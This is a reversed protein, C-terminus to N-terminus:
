LSCRHLRHFYLGLIQVPPSAESETSSSSPIEESIEQNSDSEEGPRFSLKVEPEEIRSDLKEGEYPKLRESHVVVMKGNPKM